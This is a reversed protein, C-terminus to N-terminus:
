IKLCYQILNAAPMVFVDVLIVVDDVVGVDVVIVVVYLNYMGIQRENGTPIGTTPTPTGKTTRPTTKGETTLITTKTTTLEPPVNTPINTSTEPPPKRTSGDSTGISETTTVPPLPSTPIEPFTINFYPPPFTCNQYPKIIADPGLCVTRSIPSFLEMTTDINSDTLTFFSLFSETLQTFDYCFFDYTGLGACFLGSTPLVKRSLKKM